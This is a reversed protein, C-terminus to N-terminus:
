SSYECYVQSYNSVVERITSPTLKKLQEGHVVITNTRHLRGKGYVEDGVIAPDDDILEVADEGGEFIHVQSAIARATIPHDGTVM